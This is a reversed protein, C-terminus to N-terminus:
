TQYSFSGHYSYTCVKLPVVQSPLWPFWSFKRPVLWQILFLESLTFCLISPPLSDTFTVLPWVMFGLLFLRLLFGHLEKALLWTCIHLNFWLCPRTGFFQHKWVKTSSSLRSLGKPLLSILGTLGLPFWGQVNMPLVSASAQGIRQGGSAFFQSMLFLDQHQSLNLAPSLSSLPHSTQIVDGVWPVHIQGFKSLCCLVPFGPMCCDM